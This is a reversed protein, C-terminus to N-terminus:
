SSLFTSSLKAGPFYALHSYFAARYFWLTRPIQVWNHRLRTIKWYSLAEPKRLTPVHSNRIHVAGCITELIFNHRCVEKWDRSWASYWMVLSTIMCAHHMDLNSYKALRTSGRELANHIKAKGEKTCSWDKPKRKYRTSNNKGEVAGM